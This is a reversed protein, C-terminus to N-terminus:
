ESSLEKYNPKDNFISVNLKVEVAKSPDYDTEGEYVEHEVLDSRFELFKGDPKIATYSQGRGTDTKPADFVKKGIIMLKSM